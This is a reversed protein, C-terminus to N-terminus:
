DIDFSAKIWRHSNILAGDREGILDMIYDDAYGYYTIWGSEYKIALDGHCIRVLLGRCCMASCDCHVIELTHGAQLQDAAWKCDEGAREAREPKLDCEASCVMTLMMPIMAAGCSTCKSM